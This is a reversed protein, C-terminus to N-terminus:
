RTIRGRLWGLFAKDPKALKQRGSAVWFGRWEAELAYIDWGPALARRLMVMASDGSSRGPITTM